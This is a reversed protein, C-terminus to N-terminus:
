RLNDISGKDTIKIFGAKEMMGKAMMSRNGSECYLTIEEDKEINPFIGQMMDTIDYHMAGDIHDAKYEGETRVDIYIM